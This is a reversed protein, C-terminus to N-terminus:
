GGRAMWERIVAMADEGDWAADGELRAIERGQRDILLTTPLGRLRLEKMSQGKPDLFVPLGAIGARQLFPEVQHRGGRDLSLAVVQFGEGGLAAHLSALAPLERVCPACWTAWLNLLTVKDRFAATSTEIGDLTTVAIAPVPVPPDTPTLKESVPRPTPAAVAGQERAPTPAAQSGVAAGLGAALVAAIM